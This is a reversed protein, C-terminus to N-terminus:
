GNTTDARSYGSSRRAPLKRPMKLQKLKGAAVGAATHLARELSRSSAEDIPNGDLDLNELRPFKEFLKDAHEGLWLAGESNLRSMALNLTVLLPLSAFNSLALSLHSGIYSNALELVQLRRPLTSLVKVMVVPELGIQCGSLTLEELQPVAEMILDWRGDEFAASAFIWAMLSLRRLQPMPPWNQAIHKLGVAQLKNKALDLHRLTPACSHLLPTLSPADVPELWLQELVLSHLRLGALTLHEIGLVDVGNESLDLGVLTEKLAGLGSSLMMIGPPGFANGQLLLSELQCFKELRGALVAAGGSQLDNRSLDLKRLSNGATGGRQLATLLEELGEKQLNSSSIILSTLAPTPRSLSQFLKLRDSVHTFYSIELEEIGNSCPPVELLCTTAAETDSAATLSLRCLSRSSLARLLQRIKAAFKTHEDPPSQASNQRQVWVINVEKLRPFSSVGKMCFLVPALPTQNSLLTLKRINATVLQPWEAAVGCLMLTESLRLCTFVRSLAPADLGPLFAM